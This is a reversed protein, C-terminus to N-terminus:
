KLWEKQLFDCSKFEDSIKIYTVEIKKKVWDDYVKIREKMLAMNYLSQYDDKLNARHAPLEKDLKVIRFVVNANEDTTRFPESIEGVKLDRVKVYMDPNLEEMTLWTVRDSPNTSVYKGGNTRSDKHTSFKRAADEFTINNARIQDAISDLKSIAEAAEEPKVKPRILIHRTNVMDGKRDILQIIHFGYKTEIIKSVTNKTLSFAADAYEKELEGRTLYGIEGGNKASETDESYMVALVNFSKGALIQSRYDLLKQRAEAKNEENAPPDLQIISIEVKAPVVPISDDPIASYFRKLAAPTITINQAIKAQVENITEQELMAKKIDRRIEILSKKFYEELAKESGTQRIADNMRMNLNGEVVDDTVTISDIRAQDLFLKSILLQNLVNCSLEETPQKNGNRKADIIMNELDSLYIVENGVIAAVSEVLVQSFAPITGSLILGVLLVILRMDRKMIIQKTFRLIRKRLLMMTFEM